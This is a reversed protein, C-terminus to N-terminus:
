WPWAAVAGAAAAAALGAVGALRRGPLRPWARRDPAALPQLRYGVPPPPVTGYRRVPIRPQAAGQLPAGCVPCCRDAPGAQAGCEDCGTM